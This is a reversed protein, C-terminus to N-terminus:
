VKIRDTDFIRLYIGSPTGFDNIQLINKIIPHQDEIPIGENFERGYLSLTFQADKSTVAFVINDGLKSLDVRQSEDGTVTGRPSAVEFFASLGNRFGTGTRFDPDPRPLWAGLTNVQAADVSHTQIVSAWFRGAVKGMYDRYLGLNIGHSILRDKGMEVFDVRLTRLHRGSWPDTSSLQALLRHTLVAKNMENFFQDFVNTDSPVNDLFYILKSITLEHLDSSSYKLNNLKENAYNLLKSDPMINKDIRARAFILVIQIYDDSYTSLTKYLSAGEDPTISFLYEAAFRSITENGPYKEVIKLVDQYHSHPDGDRFYSMLELDFGADVDSSSSTSQILPVGINSIEAILDACAGPRLFSLIRIKDRTEIAKDGVMSTLFQISPDALSERCPGTADSTARQAALSALIGDIASHKVLTEYRVVPNAETLRAEILSTIQKNIKDISQWGLFAIALGCISLGVAGVKLGSGIYLSFLSREKEVRADVTQNIHETLEQKLKYYTGTELDM